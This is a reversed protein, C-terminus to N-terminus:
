VNLRSSQRLLNRQRVTQPSSSHLVQKLRDPRSFGAGVSQARQVLTIETSHNPHAKTSCIQAPQATTEVHDGVSWFVVPPDHPRASEPTERATEVPLQPTIESRIRLRQPMEVITEQRENGTRFLLRVDDSDVNPILVTFRHIGIDLHPTLRVSYYRGGDISLFAEWEEAAQDGTWSLPTFQGGRLTVRDAPSILQLSDAHAVVAASLLTALLFSRRSLRTLKDWSFNDQVGSRM